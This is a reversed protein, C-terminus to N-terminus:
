YGCNQFSELDDVAYTIIMGRSGRIFQKTIHILKQQGATDWLQYKIPRKKLKTGIVKGKQDTQDVEIKVAM